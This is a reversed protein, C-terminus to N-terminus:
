TKEVRNKGTTKASRMAADARRLLDDQTEGAKRETVGASFTIFVRENNFLFFRKTLERQLRTMVEAAEAVGTDPLLIVFEEGGFRSMTDTPRLTRRMAKALHTLAGDGGLHGLRNNLSKFNDLDLLAVSLKGGAREARALETNFAQDLGRRNLLETLPDKTILDSVSALEGELQRVRREGAEVEGKAAVLEEHAKRVDAGLGRADSVIASVVDSIERVSTAAAVKAAHREFRMPYEDTAAAFSGFRQLVIEVFQRLARKAEDLSAKIMAQRYAAERLTKEAEGIARPDLPDGILAQARQIQGKLWPEEGVLDAVNRALVDIL